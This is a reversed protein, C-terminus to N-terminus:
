PILRFSEIVHTLEDDRKRLQSHTGSIDILYQRGNGYVNVYWHNLSQSDETDLEEYTLAYGGDFDLIKLDDYTSGKEAILAEISKVKTNFLMNASFRKPIDSTIVSIIPLVAEEFKEDEKPQYIWSTQRGWDGEMVFGSPIDIRYGYKKNEFLTFANDEFSSLALGMIFLFIVSATKRM